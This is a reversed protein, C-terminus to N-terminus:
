LTLSGSVLTRSTGGVWIDGTEETEIRVRGNRGLATGQRTVFSGPLHGARILWLALGANLSGTV